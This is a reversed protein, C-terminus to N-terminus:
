NQARFHVTYDGCTPSANPAWRMWATVAKSDKSALNGVLVYSHGPALCQYPSWTSTYGSCGLDSGNVVYCLYAGAPASELEITLKFSDSFGDCGPWWGQDEAKFYFLDVDGAYALNGTRWVEHDGNYCYDGITGLDVGTYCTGGYDNGYNEDQCECGDAKYNNLDHWGDDCAVLSCQNNGCSATGHSMICAEDCSLVSASIPVTLTANDVANTTILLTGTVDGRTLAHIYVPISFAGDEPKITQPLASLATLQIQSSSGSELQVDSVVLGGTGVNRVEVNIAAATWGEALTGFDLSWPTVGAQPAAGFASLPASGSTTGLRGVATLQLAGALPGGKDVAVAVTIQREEMIGILGLNGDAPDLSFGQDAGSTLLATVTAEAGSNRLIVDRSDTTAFRVDGFDVKGSSPQLIELHPQTYSSGTLPVRLEPQQPDNTAVVLTATFAAEKEPALHVTISIKEGPNAYADFPDVSFAPAEGQELSADTIALVSDSSDNQISAVESSDAGVAVYGFPLKETLLKAKATGIARPTINLEVQKINIKDKDVSGDYYDLRLKTADNSADVPTYTIAVTFYENAKLIYPKSVSPLPLEGNSAPKPSEATSEGIKVTYENSADLELRALSVDLLGGGKNVVKLTHTENCGLKVCPFGLGFAPEVYIKPAYEDQTPVGCKEPTVACDVVLHKSCGAGLAAALGAAWVEAVRRRRSGLINKPPRCSM